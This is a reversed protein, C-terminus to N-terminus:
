NSGFRVKAVKVRWLAQETQLIGRRLTFRTPPFMLRRAKRLATNLVIAHGNAAVACCFVLALRRAIKLGDSGLAFRCGRVSLVNECPKKSLETSQPLDLSLVKLYFTIASLLTCGAQFGFRHFDNLAVRIDDEEHARACSDELPQRRSNWNYRYSAIGDPLPNCFAHGMRAAVEGTGGDIGTWGNM